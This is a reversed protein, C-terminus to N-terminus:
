GALDFCFNPLTERNIWIQWILRILGSNPPHRLEGGQSFQRLHGLRRGLEDLEHENLQPLQRALPTTVLTPGV